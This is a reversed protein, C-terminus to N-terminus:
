IVVFSANTLDPNGVLQAIRVQATGGFGDADFFLAGSANNYIFRQSTSTASTGLTFRSVDLVGGVLSDSSFVSDGGFGARSVSLLDSGIEFDNIKDIGETPNNFGFVDKGAGGFLLDVGAGGFITDNGADGYLTDNGAFGFITDNGATGVLNDAQPTGTINVPLVLTDDNLINGTASKAISLTANTPNSLDVKFTDDPEVITDGLIGVTVNKTTEGPAFTLTTKDVKTYDNNAITATGDATAYDFTITQTSPNSLTVAFTANTTGSDGENISVDSISVTPQTDNDAINVTASNATALTYATPNATLSLIATEQGEFINDDIPNLDITATDKGAAFTVTGPLNQYDTSNTATGTLTYAVTLSQAFDGTRTLTFQGPNPTEVTKTEAAEIDNATVSITPLVPTASLNLSYDTNGSNLSLQVYYTGVALGKIDISESNNGENDSIAITEDFDIVGDNNTDQGLTVFLDGKNLGNVDLSFDSLTELTFRYYDDPDAESIFDSKTTIGNLIGLDQATAVTNGANDPTVPSSPVTLSLNYDTDGSKQFIRVYYTNPSLDTINITENSKGIEESSAVVEDDQRINDENYDQILEVGIDASMTNVNLILDRLAAFYAESEDVSTGITFRYYVEPNASNIIGNINLNGDLQGLEIVNSITDNVSFISANASPSVPTSTNALSTILNIPQTPTTIDDHYHVHGFHSPSYRVMGTKGDPSSWLRPDDNYVVSILGTNAFAQIQNSVDTHDYKITNNDVFLGSANIGALIQQNISNDFLQSGKVPNLLLNKPTPEVAEYIEKDNKVIIQNNPAAVYWVNNKRIELFFNKGQSYKELPLTDIDLDRGAGHSKHPSGPPGGAKLSAGNLTLNKGYATRADQLAKFDWNTAWRETQLNGDKIDVGPITGVKLENWQPADSTNINDQAKKSLQQVPIVKKRDNIVADFLSIAWSLENGDNVGNVNLSTGSNRPFGLYALRQEQRYIDIKGAGFTVPNSGSTTSFDDTVNVNITLSKQSQDQVDFTVGSLGPDSQHGQGYTRIDGIIKPVYYLTGQVSGIKADEGKDNILKGNTANPLSKLTFNSGQQNLVVKIVDGLLGNINVTTPSFINEIYGLGPSGDSNYFNLISLDQSKDIKGDKNLDITLTTGDRQSGVVGQNLQNEIIPVVTQYSEENKYNENESSEQFAEQYIILTDSGGGAVNGSPNTHNGLDNIVTGGSNSGLSVRYIDNGRGGALKDQGGGGDLVDNGDNGAVIDDGAGGYLQDNGLGGAITDNGDRGYVLDEGSGVLITNNASTGTVKYSQNLLNSNFFDNGRGGTGLLITQYFTRQEVEIAKGDLNITTWDNEARITQLDNETLTKGQVLAAFLEGEDGPTDIANLQADVFHGYEELLVPVVEELTRNELLDQALYIKGTAIAFAGDAGNIEDRPRIEIPPIISLDGNLWQQRITVLRVRDIETGFISEITSEFDDKAAFQALYQRVSQIAQPNLM